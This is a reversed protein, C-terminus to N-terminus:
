SRYRVLVGPPPSSPRAMEYFSGNCRFITIPTRWKTRYNANLKTEQSLTESPQGVKGRFM